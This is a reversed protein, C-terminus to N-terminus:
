IMTKFIKSSSQVLGGTCCIIFKEYYIKKKFYDDYVEVLINTINEKVLSSSARRSGIMNRKGTTDTKIEAHKAYM